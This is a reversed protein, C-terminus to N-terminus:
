RNRAIFTHPGSGVGKIILYDGDVAGEVPQGNQTVVADSLSGLPIHVDARTNVPIVVDLTFQDARQKFSAGITGRISPTTLRAWELDGPQPKIQFRSFAPDIPRIGFLGRPIANAPASAWAHSFSMNPKQPPDWAEAVITAGLNYMMHGWSNGEKATMLDLAAQGREAHYLADLLFHSGYVSVAMGRTVMYDAVPAIKEPDVVGLSVPFASAHLAFHDVDQGDRFRGSEPDYLHTNIGARLEEALAAYRQADEEEGLVAAIRSLDEIARQNFANIVTNVSTFRYGDRQSNPWDVLDRGYPGRQGGEQPGKDVLGDDTVFPKLTKSQLAEYHARLSDPNGTYLYDEWAMMVTQLKYETPWTPRYFLYEVSHRPFAYERDVTYHSLQNILADGEYNRRERTHTDVYVDLSTAKISYKCFEWVDNLVPHSSEFHAADDDFALRLAVARIQEKNFDAPANVLEAYRFVRYGFHELQQPGEKLTWTEQYTNGTRMEHRVTNEGALEEGLRVEVDQDATGNLTLQLGGVVARGFDIFYNNNGKDVINAPAVLHRETNGTASALLEDIGGRERAPQWAHDDFGPEKWGFPYHRADIGERPAYYYANHGANGQDRYIHDGGLMKWSQDTVILESTGDEYEVRMQLLFRRRDRDTSYNLAALVQEQGPQMQETVDFTNYRTEGRLFSREPGAGVFEGNLYLKYVYQAAPEPCLATVHVIAHRIPAEQLTFARRMFVFNTEGTQSEEGNWIGTAIWQDGVATVFRQPQSYPGVQDHQDWTRVQWYYVHDPELAPGAYVVNSSDSSLVKGSDWTLDTGDTLAERSSAVQVQYATQVENPDPDQVIWSLRPTPNELGLPEAMLDMLLGTPAEPPHTTGDGVAFRATLCILVCGVVTVWSRIRNIASIRLNM